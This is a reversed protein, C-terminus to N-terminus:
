QLGCLATEVSDTLSYKTNFGLKRIKSDDWIRNTTFTKLAFPSVNYSTMQEDTLDAPVNITAAIRGTARDIEKKLEFWTTDFGKLLYIGHDDEQQQHTGLWVMARGIDRTDVLSVKTSGGGIMPYRDLKHAALMRAFFSSIDRAGITSAPRLITTRIGARKGVEQVIREREIGLRQILFEPESIYSEDIPEDRRFDYIVVTSLQIFKSAGQETAAEVLTRTLKIEVEADLSIQTNLKADATCNYVVEHGRIVNEIATRNSYDIRIVNVGLSELFTVNSTSRLAATVEHGALHLQEVVHGGIFGSAGFVIAKM